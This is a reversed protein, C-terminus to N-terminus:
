FYEDASALLERAQEQALSNMLTYGPQSAQAALVENLLRDHLEKVDNEDTSVVDASDVVEIGDEDDPADGKTKEHREVSALAEAMADELADNNQKGM